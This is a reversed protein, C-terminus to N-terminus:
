KVSEAVTRFLELKVPPGTMRQLIWAEFPPMDADYPIRPINHTSM